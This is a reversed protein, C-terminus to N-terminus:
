RRAYKKLNRIANGIKRKANRKATKFRNKNRYNAEKIKRRIGTGRMSQIGGQQKKKTKTKIQAPKKNKKYSNLIANKAEARAIWGKRRRRRMGKVGYHMLYDNSEPISNYEWLFFDGEKM